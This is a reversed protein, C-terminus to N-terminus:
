QGAGVACHLVMCLEPTGTTMVMGIFLWLLGFVTFDLSGVELNKVAEHLEAVAQARVAAEARDADARNREEADVRTDLRDLASEVGDLMRELHAVRQELTAGPAIGLRGRARGISLDVEVALGAGRVVARPKLPIDRWYRAFRQWPWQLGHKKTAAAVEWLVLLMGLTEYAMGVRRVNDDTTPLFQLVLWGALALGVSWWLPWGRRFWGGWRALAMQM